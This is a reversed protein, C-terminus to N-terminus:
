MYKVLKKKLEKYKCYYLALFIEVSFVFLTVDNSKLAKFIILGKYYDMKKSWYSKYILLKLCIHLSM